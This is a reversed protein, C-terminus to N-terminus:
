SSLVARAVVRRRAQRTDGHAGTRTGTHMDQRAQTHGQADSAKWFRQRTRMGAHTGTRRRTPAASPFDKPVVAADQLRPFVGVHGKGLHTFV